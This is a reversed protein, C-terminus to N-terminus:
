WLIQNCITCQDKGVAYLSSSPDHNKFIDRDSVIFLSIIKWSDVFYIYIYNKRTTYLVTFSEILQIPFSLNWSFHVRCYKRLSADIRLVPVKSIQVCQLHHTARKSSRRHPLHLSLDRESRAYPIFYPLFPSARNATPRSCKPTTWVLLHIKLLM